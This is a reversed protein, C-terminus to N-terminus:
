KRGSAAFISIPAKEEGQTSKSCCDEGTCTINAEKLGAEKLWKLVEEREFGMWRDFQEIRLFNFDHRDLDTIVLIGGPKLIRAMEKIASPPDEVHHLFMNAFVYDVTENELPLREAQGLRLDLAESNPFKKRMERLMEPSQDVAIVKLGRKILGETIFGTGAGIDAALKGKEVKALSFAKERVSESFFSKRMRDWNQAVEDFYGKSEM